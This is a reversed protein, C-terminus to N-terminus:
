DITRTEQDLHHVPGAHTENPIIVILALVAFLVAIATVHHIADNKGQTSTKDIRNSIPAGISSSLPINREM